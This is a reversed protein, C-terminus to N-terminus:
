KLKVTVTASVGIRLPFKPDLNIVHIRVPIRQTVKVWNGTANQPPLLSFVAGTGGSISEVVGKFPHDPYLDTVIKASQGVRIAGIETEKFNADVWFENESILAFLPQNITVLNGERLTMNAIWGSVPATIKTYQLNLEAQALNAKARALNAVAVQFAATTEDGIQQSLYKDKVLTATRKATVASKTLQAHQMAVDAEAMDIAVDFPERDIEFLLQGAKVHSNNVIHLKQIRGSVRAAMQIVNANIYADDTSVYYKGYTHFGLWVLVSIAFFGVVLITKVSPKKRVFRM